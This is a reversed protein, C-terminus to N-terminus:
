FKMWSFAEEHLTGQFVYDAAGELFVQSFSDGQGEFYVKLREGSAVKVTVPSALELAPGLMLASAVAGTGCALTEDEVGREYTRVVLEGGVAWAFNVNTGAPAFHQHFRIERGLEKVPAELIDEWLLVAHPVGSNIGRMSVKRGGAELELDSYADFPRVMQLKVLGDEGLWAQIPGAITDFVMERGALGRDYAFRAACRGGNGCMEPASGDANFFHWKFDVPGLEPDVRDTPELIILGDAGVSRRRMCVTKALLPMVERPVKTERNDLVVFDNGTGTMKVIEIGALPILSQIDSM